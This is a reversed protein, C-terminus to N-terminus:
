GKARALEGALKELSDAWAQPLLRLHVKGIPTMKSVRVTATLRTKNQGDETLVITNLMELPRTGDKGVPSTMFILRSPPTIEQFIGRIPYSSGESSCMDIHISGGMFADMRCASTTFGHPGWWRAVRLPDIWANFVDERKADFVRMFTYDQIPGPTGDELM